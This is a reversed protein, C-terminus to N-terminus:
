NLNNLHNVPRSVARTLLDVAVLVATLSMYTAVAYVIFIDKKHRIYSSRDSQSIYNQSQTFLGTYMMSCTARSINWAVLRLSRRARM